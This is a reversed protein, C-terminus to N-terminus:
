RTTTVYQREAARRSLYRNKVHTEQPKDGGMVYIRARMEAFWLAMPGDQRLKSGSKGPVWTVLQDILARIGASSDPDPLHILNDHNHKLKGGSVEPSTSGFLPEMSAVGFDPDIKNKGTYHPSIKIGRQKCYQMIKEDHYLWNSYGQAEIVWETVEYVPTIEEIQKAYWSPLTDTAMWANLVFREKTRRDLAYVMLFALGTGAPDISGMVQMGEAGFKPHGKAGARLPGAKRMGDVCARVCQAKFTMDDSTEQQQWVLGWIMPRNDARAEACSPGDWAPYMGDEDPDLEMNEDLLQSSRPWLTVWDKPDEAFELVAPTKLVTWPSHGTLYIDDNLVYSYLDTPAVRTGVLLV